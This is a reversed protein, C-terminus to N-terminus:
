HHTPHRDSGRLYRTGAVECVGGEPTPTKAIRRHQRHVSGLNGDQVAHTPLGGPAILMNPIGNWKQDPNDKYKPTAGDGRISLAARPLGSSLSLWKSGLHSSDLRSRSLTVPPYIRDIIRPQMKGSQPLEMVRFEEKPLESHTNIIERRDGHSYISVHCPDCRYSKPSHYQDLYNCCHHQKNQYQHDQDLYKILYRLHLTRLRHRLNHHDQNRHHHDLHRQTGQPQVDTLGSANTMTKPQRQLQPRVDSVGSAPTMIMPQPVQRPRADSVGSAPPITM